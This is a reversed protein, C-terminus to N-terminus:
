FALTIHFLTRIVSTRTKSATASFALGTATAPITEFAIAGIYFDASGRLLNLFFVQRKRPVGCRRAVPNRRFGIELKSLVIMSNNTGVGAGGGCLILVLIWILALAGLISVFASVLASGLGEGSTAASPSASTTSVEGAANAAATASRSSAPSL